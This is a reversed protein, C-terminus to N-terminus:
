QQNGRKKITELWNNEMKFFEIGYYMVSLRYYYDDKNDIQELEGAVIQQVAQMQAIQMQVGRQYTELQQLRTAEDLYDYFFIKILHERKNAQLPEKLWDQFAAKGEPCISYLKKNKADGTEEEEIWGRETMRKLAPYLNGYSVKYFIGISQEIIKKLDYGSMKGELLMGLIVQELM